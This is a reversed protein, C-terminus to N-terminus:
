NYVTSVPFNKTMAMKRFFSNRLTATILKKFIVYTDYVNCELRM